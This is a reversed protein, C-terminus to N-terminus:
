IGLIGPQEVVAHPHRIVLLALLAVTAMVISNVVLAYSQLPIFEIM